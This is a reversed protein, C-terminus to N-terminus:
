GRVGSTLVLREFFGKFFIFLGSVRKGLKLMGNRLRQAAVDFSVALISFLSGIM